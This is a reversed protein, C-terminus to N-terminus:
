KSRVSVPQASTRCRVTGRDQDQAKEMACYTKKSSIIEMSRHRELIGEFTSKIVELVSIRTGKASM